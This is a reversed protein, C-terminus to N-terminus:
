IIKVATSDQLKIAAENAECGSNCFFVGSLDSIETLKEALVEQEHIRFLNSYHIGKDIQNKLASNFRKNNHGLGTVAIGCLADFYKEGNTSHLWVGSGHSFSIPLRNYTNLINSHM